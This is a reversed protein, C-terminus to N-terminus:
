YRDYIDGINKRSNEDCKIYFFNGFASVGNDSWEMTM